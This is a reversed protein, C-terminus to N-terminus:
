NLEWNSVGDSIFTHSIKGTFVDDGAVADITDAGAPRVTTTGAKNKIIFMKGTVASAAPLTNTLTATAVVYYNAATLTYNTSTAFRSFSSGGVGAILTNGLYLATVSAGITATNPGHGVASSGIVLTNTDTAALPNSNYGIFVSDNGTTNTSGASVGVATNNGGTTTKFLSNLGL